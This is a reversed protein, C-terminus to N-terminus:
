GGTASLAGMPSARPPLKPSGPFGPARHSVLCGGLACSIWPRRARGRHQEREAAHNVSLVADLSRQSFPAHARDEEDDVLVEPRTVRHLQEVAVRRLVLREVLAEEPLRLGGGRQPAPVR